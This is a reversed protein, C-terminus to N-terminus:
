RVATSVPIAGTVTAAGPQLDRSPLALKSATVAVRSKASGTAALVTNRTSEDVLRSVQVPEFDRLGRSSDRQGKYVRPGDPFVVVDGRRLTPDAMLEAVLEADPTIRAPKAEAPMAPRRAAVLGYTELASREFAGRALPQREIERFPQPSQHLSHFMAAPPQAPLPGFLAEYVSQSRTPGSILFASFGLLVAAYKPGLVPM